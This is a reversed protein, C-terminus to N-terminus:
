YGKFYGPISSARAGRGCPVPGTNDNYYSYLCWYWSARTGASGQVTACPWYQNRDPYGLWSARTGTCLLLDGVRSAGISYLLGAALVIEDKWMRQYQPDRCTCPLDIICSLTYCSDVMIMRNCCIIMFLISLIYM